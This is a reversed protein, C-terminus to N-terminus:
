GLTKRIVDAIQHCCAETRGIEPGEVVEFGIATFFDEMREMTRTVPHIGGTSKNRRSPTGMAKDVSQLGPVLGVVDGSSM